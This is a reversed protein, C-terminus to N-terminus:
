NLSQLAQQLAKGHEDALAAQRLMALSQPAREHARLRPLADMLLRFNGWGRQHTDSYGKILQQTKIIELALEAQGPLCQHIAQLWEQIRAQETAYRLSKPRWPRLAALAYLQLYGRLSSTQLIRGKQVRRGLWRHAWPHDLLWRGWAVPLTDAIEEVRPHLFEHIQMLQGEQLRVEQAVRDFRTRRTKLDAVRVVDEYSMWVALHRAAEPMILDAHVGSADQLSHLRDLYLGAYNLDQYDAIRAVGLRLMEHAPEVFQHQIRQELAALRPGLQTPNSIGSGSPGKQAAEFAAAFARLSAKVGVGSREITAEFQERGFPLCASAAVAGLLAPGIPAGFRESLEQFNNSVFQRAAKRAGQILDDPNVRGDAM